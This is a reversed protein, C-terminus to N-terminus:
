NKTQYLNVKLMVAQINKSFSKYLVSIQGKQYREYKLNKTINFAKYCIKDSVTKTSLDKFVGYAMGQQFCIKDKTNKEKIKTFPGYESYTFDPQRLNMEPM